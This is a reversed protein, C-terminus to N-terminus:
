NRSGSLEGVGSGMELNALDFEWNEDAWSPPRKAARLAFKYMITIGYHVQYGFQSQVARTRVRGNYLLPLRLLLGLRPSRILEAPHTNFAPALGPRVMHQQTFSVNILSIQIYGSPVM